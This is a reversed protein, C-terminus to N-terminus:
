NENIVKKLKQNIYKWSNEYDLKQLNKKKDMLYSRDKLLPIILKLLNEQNLKKQDLIWCCGKNEYFQANKMQHNDKSSPLPIAIFPKKLFSIEALSTAGARTICLDSISILDIFNEKFDFIINEISNNNYFNKLNDVNEKSTQQIIKISFNKSIELMVEKITYDFIKAGQSGGSILFCFKDQNNNQNKEFKYFVKSVLPKILEIKHLHKQPFNLLKDSYCFIKTAFNLFFNNGRGLILNQEILFISLKLLKASIVIPFSMYGGISIVKDIKKNKLFFIVKIILYILKIIKYPFYLNYNLKPTDIIITKDIDSSLYKLGRVDTSFYIENDDILHEKIIKAPIVHGGTGGTTILIKQM